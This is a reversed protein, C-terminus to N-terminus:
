ASGHPLVGPILPAFIKLLWTALVVILPVVGSRIYGYAIWEFERREDEYPSLRIATEFDGTCALYSRMQSALGFM